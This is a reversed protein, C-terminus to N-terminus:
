EPVAEEVMVEDIGVDENAKSYDDLCSVESNGFAQRRHSHRFYRQYLM